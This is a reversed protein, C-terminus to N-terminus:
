DFVAQTEPSPITVGQAILAAEKGGEDCWCIGNNYNRWPCFTEKLWFGWSREKVGTKVLTWVPEGNDLVVRHKWSAPRRLISFPKFWKQVRHENDAGVTYCLHEGETAIHQNDPTEEWYGQTLILSTFPWPHDHMHPDEDGRYFKHLYIRGKGKNKGFDKDRPYIFFRRLYIDTTDDRLIDVYPFVKCLLREIFSM